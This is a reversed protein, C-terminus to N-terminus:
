KTGLGALSDNVGPGNGFPRGIVGQRVRIGIGESSVRNENVLKRLLEGEVLIEAIHECESKTLGALRGRRLAIALHLDTRAPNYNM